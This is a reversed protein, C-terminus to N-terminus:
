NGEPMADFFPYLYDENTNEALTNVIQNTSIYGIIGGGIGVIPHLFSLGVMINGGIHISASPIFTSEVGSIWARKKRQDYSLALSKDKELQSQYSLGAGAVESLVGLTDPLKGKTLQYIDIASRAANYIGAKQIPTL